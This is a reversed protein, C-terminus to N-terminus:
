PTSCGRAAPACCRIFRWRSSSKCGAAIVVVARRLRFVRQRLLRDFIAVVADGDVLEALEMFFIGVIGIDQIQEAISVALCAVEVLGAAVIQLCQGDLRLM